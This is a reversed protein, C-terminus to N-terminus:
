GVPRRLSALVVRLLADFNATPQLARAQVVAEQAVNPRYGLNQLASQVEAAVPDDSTKPKASIAIIDELAVPLKDKLKLLILDALKKGVGKAKTLEVANQRHIASALQGPTYTSLLAMAAKPGVGPINTLADYVERDAPDVFGYLTLADERVTMRIHVVLPENLRARAADREHVFVQYGVGHVDLVVHDGGLWRTIGSLWAIM